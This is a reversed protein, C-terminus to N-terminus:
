SPRRIAQKWAEDFWRGFAGTRGNPNEEACTRILSEWAEHRLRGIVDAILKKQRRTRASRRASPTVPKSTPVLSRALSRTAM